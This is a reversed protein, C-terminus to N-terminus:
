GGCGPCADLFATATIDSVALRKELQSGLMADTVGRLYVSLLPVILPPEKVTSRPANLSTPASTTVLLLHTSDFRFIDIRITVM